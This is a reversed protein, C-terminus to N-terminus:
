VKMCYATTCVFRPVNTHGGAAAGGRSRSPRGGVEASKAGFQGGFNVRCTTVVHHAHINAVVPVVTDGSSPLRELAYLLESPAHFYQRGGVTDEPRM